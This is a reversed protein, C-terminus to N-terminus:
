DRGRGDRLSTQPDSPGDAPATRLVLAHESHELFAGRKLAFARGAASRRPTVLLAQQYGRDRCLPLAADLLAIGIGRRRAAPDVM